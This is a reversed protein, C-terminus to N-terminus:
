VARFNYSVYENLKAGKFPPLDCFLRKWESKCRAIEASWDDDNELNERYEWTLAVFVDVEAFCGLARIGPKPDLCRFDFVDDEAPEVRALLASAEKDRPNEAITIFGGDTFEDLV